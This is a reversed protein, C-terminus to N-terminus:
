QIYGLAKLRERIKQEDVSDPDIGLVRGKEYTAVTKVPHRDLYDGAIIDTLVRGDMDGAVPLGALYLLTPTIDLNVAEDVLHLSRLTGTFRDMLRFIRHGYRYISTYPEDITWAGTYRHKIAPGMALLIGRARHRGSWPHFSLLDVVHLEQGGAILVSEMEPMGMIPEATFVRIDPVEDSEAGELGEIRQFIAKGTDKVRVAELDAIIQSRLEHYLNLDIEGMSTYESPNIDLNFMFHTSGARSLFCTSSEHHVKGDYRNLYGLRELLGHMDFEVIRNKIPRAGHDSVVFYYANQGYTAMLGSLFGDARIWGEKIVDKYAPDAQEGEWDGETFLGPSMDKWFFHQLNDPSYYGYAILDPLIDSVIEKEIQTLLAIEHEAYEVKGGADEPVEYDWRSLLAEAVETYQGLDGSLHVLGSRHSLVSSIFVGSVEFPPWTCFWNVVGVRRGASSMISWFPAAEWDSSLSGFSNVGHKEEKKGTAISTWSPPTLQAGYTDIYGFSGEDMLRRFAPLSGEEIFPLIVNWSGADVVYVVIKERGSPMPPQPVGGLGAFDFPLNVFIVYLLCIFAIVLLHKARPQTARWIHVVLNSTILSLGLSFVVAIMGVLLASDKIAGMKLYRPTLVRAGTYATWVAYGATFALTLVLYIIFRRFIMLGRTRGPQALPHTVLFLIWALGVFALAWIAFSYIFLNVRLFGSRMLQLQESPFFFIVNVIFYLAGAILGTALIEGVPIRPKEDKM